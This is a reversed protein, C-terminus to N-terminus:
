SCGAAPVFADADDLLTRLTSVPVLFSQDAANKAYVVGIVRGDADLAASGSSGPEVAADTVLVM